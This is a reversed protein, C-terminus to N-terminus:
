VTWLFLLRDSYSNEYHLIYEKLLSIANLRAIMDTDLPVFFAISGIAKQMPPTLPDLPHSV